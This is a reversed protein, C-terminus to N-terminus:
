CRDYGLLENIFGLGIEAQRSVQVAQFGILLLLLARVRALLLGRRIQGKLSEFRGLLGLKYHVSVFAWSYVSV